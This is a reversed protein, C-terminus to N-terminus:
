KPIYLELIPLLISDYMGLNKWAGGCLKEQEAWASGAFRSEQLMM